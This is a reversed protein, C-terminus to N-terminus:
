KDKYDNIRNKFNRSTILRQFVIFYLYFGKLPHITNIQVETTFNVIHKGYLIKTNTFNHVLKRKETVWLRMTTAHREM